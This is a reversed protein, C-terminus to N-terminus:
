SVSAPVNPQPVKMKNYYLYMVTFISVGAYITSFPFYFLDKKNDLNQKIIDYFSMLTIALFVLGSPRDIKFSINSFLIGVLQYLKGISVIIPIIFFLVYSTAVDKNM